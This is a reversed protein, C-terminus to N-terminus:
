THSDIQFVEEALKLELLWNRHQEDLFDLHFDFQIEEFIILILFQCSKSNVFLQLYRDRDGSNPYAPVFQTWESRWEVPEPLIVVVKAKELADACHFVLKNNIYSKCFEGYTHLNWQVERSLNLEVLDHILIAGTRLFIFRRIFKKLQLFDLYCPTLDTIIEDWNENQIYENNPFRSEPIFEPAWVMGDGIQGFNDFTLTNHLRTDRRYVPGPGCFLFSNDKAILFSGQCPDSHGYGGWEGWHYRRQGLPAGARFTITLENEKADTRFLRQDTMALLTKQSSAIETTKYSSQKPLLRRAIVNKSLFKKSQTRWFFQGGDLFDIFNQSSHTAAIEPNFFLFEWVRRRAPANRFDVGDVPHNALKFAIAQAESDKKRNAILFHMWVDGGVRYQPDGFTIGLQFDPSLSAHRFRSSNEWYATQDWYNLGCCHQFLELYRLLFAHEYIWLNIGHPYFGDDPLMELVYEFVGCLWAAWELAKPHRDWFLFSFALLGHSCGLFHAQGYDEREYGLHKWVREAVQFLKDSFDTKEDDSLFQYIWDFALSLTFLCEGSQTDINMAEYDPKLCLLLLTNFANKAQQILSIEKTILAHFASLIARDFEHLKEPGPLIKSEATMQFPQDWNDLLNEIKGWIHNGSTRKKQRLTDLDPPSFLLRPHVNKLEPRIQISKPKPRIKNSPYIELRLPVFRAENWHLTMQKEDSDQVFVLVFVRIEGTEFEDGWFNYRGEFVQEQIEIQIKPMEPIGRWGPWPGVQIGPPEPHFKMEAFRLLNLEDLPIEDQHRMFCLHQQLHYNKADFLLHFGYRGAQLSPLPVTLNSQGQAIKSAALEIQYMPHKLHNNITM